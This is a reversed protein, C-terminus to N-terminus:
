SAQKLQGTYYMLSIEYMKKVIIRILVQFLKIKRQLVCRKKYNNIIYLTRGMDKTIEDLKKNDINYAKRSEPMRKIKLFAETDIIYFDQKKGSKKARKVPLGIMRLIYTAQKHEIEKNDLKKNYIAEYGLQYDLDKNYIDHYDKKNGEENFFELLKKVDLKFYDQM